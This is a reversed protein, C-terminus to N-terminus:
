GGFYAIPYAASDGVRNCNYVIWMFGREDPDVTGNEDIDVGGWGPGWSNKLLWAGSAGLSDDWGCIVVCHNSSGPSCHDFVGGSYAQFWADAYIGVAVSGYRIIAQKIDEVPAVVNPIYVWDWDYIFYLHPCSHNCPKKYAVYPYCTEALAGETIFMNFNIFGGSCSWGWPNCDLLWQESMNEDTSMIKKMLGEVAGVMCFAWCSGCAGQNRVPTYYGIYRSPLERALGLGGTDVSEKQDGSVNGLSSNFGCLDELSFACAPNYDVTFSYGQEKIEARMEELKKQWFIENDTIQASVGTTFLFSILVYGLTFVFFLKKMM